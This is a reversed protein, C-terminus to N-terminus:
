VITKFTKSPLRRSADDQKQHLDAPDLFDDSVAGGLFSASSTTVRPPMIKSPPLSPLLKQGVCVDRPQCGELRDTM